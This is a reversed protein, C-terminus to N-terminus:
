FGVLDCRGRSVQGVVGDGVALFLLLDAGGLGDNSLDLFGSFQHLLLLDAFRMNFRIKGSGQGSVLLPHSLVLDGRRGRILAHTASYYM